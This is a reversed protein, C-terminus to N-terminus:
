FYKVKQKLRWLTYDDDSYGYPKKREDFPGSRVVSLPAKKFNVNLLKKM